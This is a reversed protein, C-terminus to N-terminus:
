GTSHNEHFIAVNYLKSFLYDVQIHIEMFLMGGKYRFDGVFEHYGELVPSRVLGSFPYAGPRLNEKFILITRRGSCKELHGATISEDIGTLDAGWFTPAVNVAVDKETKRVVIQIQKLRPEFEGLFAGRM